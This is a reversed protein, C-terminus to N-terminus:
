KVAYETDFCSGQIEQQLDNMEHQFVIMGRRSLRQMGTFLVINPVM